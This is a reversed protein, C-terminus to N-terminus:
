EDDLDDFYGMYDFYRLKKKLIIQFKPNEFIKERFAIGQPTDKLLIDMNADSTDEVMALPKLCVTALFGLFFNTLLNFEITGNSNNVM